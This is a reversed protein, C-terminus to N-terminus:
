SLSSDLEILAHYLIDSTMKMASENLYKSKDEASHYKQFFKPMKAGFMMKFTMWLRPTEVFRRIEEKEKKPIVSICFADRIGEARFPDYDGFFLPLRGGEEHYYGLKKITDRLVQLAVSRESDKTVPWIGIMDGIGVLEMDYVAVINKLNRKMVYAQSGICGLEEDGFIIFRFKHKPKYKKLRNLLDFVVAISAGNDNAGPSGPVADYHTIVLIEKRGKGITVIINDGKLALHQYQQLHYDFGMQTLTDLIVERRGFPSKGELKKVM